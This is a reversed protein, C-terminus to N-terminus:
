RCNGAELLISVLDGTVDQADDTFRDAKRRWQAETDTAALLDRVRDLAAEASAHSYLLGYESELRRFVREDAAGALSNTRVTPTGLMAAETSMTGSDGVYLDAYYLLDHILHPPVPLEYAEFDAPVPRETSLYVPGRESLLDVLEALHDDSIGRHGLDHYADWGALRLVFYPEDVPVGWAEIADRDPSFRDPHLYALEQYGLDLQKGDAAPLELGPPRCVVDAFPLTVAHILRGLSSSGVDTDTVLVSRAGVARAAHAAPPSMRSAVVDPEFRNAALLTRVERVGLEVATSVVGGRRRSLSVHDIGYADLLDLTMEKDRSLVLTEHGDGHLERIVHKFLHVQAPHQVDFLAKM